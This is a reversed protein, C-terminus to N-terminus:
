TNFLKMNKGYCLFQLGFRENYISNNFSRGTNCYQNQEDRHSSFLIVTWSAYLSAHQVDIKAAAPFFLLFPAIFLDCVNVYRLLVENVFSWQGYVGLLSLKLNEFRDKRCMRVANFHSLVIDTSFSYTRPSPRYHFNQSYLCKHMFCYSLVPKCKPDSLVTLM